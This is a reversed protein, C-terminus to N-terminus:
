HPLLWENTADKAHQTKLHATSHRFSKMIRHVDHFNFADVLKMTALTFRKFSEGLADKPHDMQALCMTLQSLVRM